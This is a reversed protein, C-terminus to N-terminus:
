KFVKNLKNPLSDHKYKLNNYLDVIPFISINDLNEVITNNKQKIFVVGKDIKIIFGHIDKAKRILDSKDVRIEQEIGIYDTIGSLLRVMEKHMKTIKKATEMQKETLSM